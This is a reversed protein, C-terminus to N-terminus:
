YRKRGPIVLLGLGVAVLYSIGRVLTSEYQHAITNNNSFTVFLQVVDTNIILLRYCAFSFCSEYQFPRVVAILVSSSPFQFGFSEMEIRLGQFISFQWKKYRKYHGYM